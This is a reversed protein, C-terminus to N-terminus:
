TTVKRVQTDFLASFAAPPPRRLIDILPEDTDLEPELAALLEDATAEIEVHRRVDAVAADLWWQRPWLTGAARSSLHLYSRVWQRGHTARNHESSTPTGVAALLLPLTATAPLTSGTAEALRAHGLEHLAVQAVELRGLVAVEHEALTAPELRGRVVEGADLVLVPGPRRDRLHDRLVVDLGGATWALAHRRAEVPLTAADLVHITRDSAPPDLVRCISAADALWGAKSTEVLEKFAADTM